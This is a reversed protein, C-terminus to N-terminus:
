PDLEHRQADHAFVDPSQQDLRPLSRQEDDLFMEADVRGVLSNERSFQARIEMSRLRRNGAPHVPKGHGSLVCHRFWDASGHMEISLGCCHRM